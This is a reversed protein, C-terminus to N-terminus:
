PKRLLSAVPEGELLVTFRLAQRIGRWLSPSRVLLWPLRCHLMTMRVSYQNAELRVSTGALVAGLAFARRRNASSGRWLTSCPRKKISFVEINEIHQQSRTITGLPTTGERHKTVTAGGNQSPQV